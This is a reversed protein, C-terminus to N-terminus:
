AFNLGNLLHLDFELYIFQIALVTFKFLKEIIELVNHDTIDERIEAEVLVYPQVTVVALIAISLAAQIDGRM